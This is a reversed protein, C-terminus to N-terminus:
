VFTRDEQGFRRRCNRFGKLNNMIKVLVNQAIDQADPESRCISLALAYIKDKYQEFISHIDPVAAM